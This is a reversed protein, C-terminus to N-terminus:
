GGCERKRSPDEGGSRGVGGATMRAVDNSTASEGRDRGAGVAGSGDVDAGFPRRHVPPHLPSPLSSPASPLPSPSPRSSPPRENLLVQRSGACRAGVLGHICVLGVATVYVARCCVACRLNSRRLSSDAM